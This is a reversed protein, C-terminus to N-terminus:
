TYHSMANVEYVTTDKSRISGSLDFKLVATIPTVSTIQVDRAEIRDFKNLGFLLSLMNIDQRKNIVSIRLKDVIAKQDKILNILHNAFVEM